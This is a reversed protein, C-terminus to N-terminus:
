SLHKDLLQALQQKQHIGVGQWIIKGGKFLVLTPISLIGFKQSTAPNQDVEIAGIKAKGEYDKALEEIVPKQVKCPGCWTAWFDVLVPVATEKIVEEEFNKDTLVHEAM